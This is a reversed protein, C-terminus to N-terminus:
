NEQEAAKRFQMVKEKSVQASGQISSLCVLITILVVLTRLSNKLANMAPKLHSHRDQELSVPQLM